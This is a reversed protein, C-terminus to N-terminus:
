GPLAQLGEIGTVTRIVRDPLGRVDEGTMYPMLVLLRGSYHDKALEAEAATGVATIEVGAAALKTAAEMLNPLGLGYGNVGKVVPVLDPHRALVEDQHARWRDAAVHLTLSM